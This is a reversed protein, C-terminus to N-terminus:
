HDVWELQLKVDLRDDGPIGIPINVDEDWGNVPCVITQVWLQLISQTKICVLSIVGGLPWCCGSIFCVTLRLRRDTLSPTWHGSQSTSTSHLSIVFTVSSGGPLLSQLATSLLIILYNGRIYRHASSRVLLTIYLCAPWQQDSYYVLLVMGLWTM